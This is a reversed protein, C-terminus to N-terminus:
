SIPAPLRAKHDLEMISRYLFLNGHCKDCADGTMDRPSHSLAGAKQDLGSLSIKNSFLIFSYKVVTGWSSLVILSYALGQLQAGTIVDFGLAWAGYNKKKRYGHSM